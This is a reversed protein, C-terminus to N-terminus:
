DNDFYSHKLIVGLIRLTCGTFPEVMQWVLKLM